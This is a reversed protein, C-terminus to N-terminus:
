KPKRTNLIWTQCGYLYLEKRLLDFMIYKNLLHYKYKCCTIQFQFLFTHISEEVNLSLCSYRFITEEEKKNKQLIQIMTLGIFLISGIQEQDFMIEVMNKKKM